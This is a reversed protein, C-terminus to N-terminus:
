AAQFNIEGVYTTQGFENVLGNTAAITATIDSSTGALVTTAINMGEETLDIPIRWMMVRQGDVITEPLDFEVAVPTTNAFAIDKYMVCETTERNAVSNLVAVVIREAYRNALAADSLTLGITAKKSAVAFATSASAKLYGAGRSFEVAGAALTATYVGGVPANATTADILGKNFLSRNKRNNETQMAKLLNKPCLHSFRGATNMRARQRLQADTRPNAVIPQYQRVIQTGNTVAFVDNGRRGTAVGNMGYIKAM